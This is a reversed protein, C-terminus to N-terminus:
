TGMRKRRRGRKMEKGRGARQWGRGVRQSRGWVVQRERLVVKRLRRVKEQARYAACASPMDRLLQERAAEGGGAGQFSLGHLRLGQLARVGERRKSMGDERLFLTQLGKPRARLSPLCPHCVLRPVSLCVSLCPCPVLTLSHWPDAPILPAFFVHILCRLPVFHTEGEGTPHAYRFGVSVSVGSYSHSLSDGYAFVQSHNLSYHVRAFVWGSAGRVFICLMGGM